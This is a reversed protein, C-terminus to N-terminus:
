PKTLLAVYPVPLDGLKILRFGRFGVGKRLGLKADSEKSTVQLTPRFIVYLCQGLGLPLYAAISLSTSVENHSM